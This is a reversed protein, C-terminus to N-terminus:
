YNQYFMEEFAKVFYTLHKANTVTTSFNCFYSNITTTGFNTAEVKAIGSVNSM